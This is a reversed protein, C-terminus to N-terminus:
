ELHVFEVEPYEPSPGNLLEGEGDKMVFNFYDEMYNSTITMEREGAFPGVLGLAMESLEDRIGLIDTVFGLDWFSGHAGTVLNIERKWVEQEDITAWFEGWGYDLASTTNHRGAGWLLFKQGDNLGNELVPGWMGGDLNVGGIIRTDDMMAAASAAGGFSHGFFGVEIEETSNAALTDIVFSTDKARVDLAFELTETNNVDVHGGYAVTGDPFEVVDTEFPHDMTIVSFGRSAVEQAIASYYFRTTNLGPSFLLVPAPLPTDSEQLTCFVMDVTSLYGSPWEYAGLIQDETEAVLPSMYSVKENRYCHNERVPDFRSIMVRRNPITDLEWPDPRSEDVLEATSMTVQYEGTPRPLLVGNCLPLVLGLLLSKSLM